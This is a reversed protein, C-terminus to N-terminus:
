KETQTSDITVIIEYFRKLLSRAYHSPHLSSILQSIDYGESQLTDQLEFIYDRMIEETFEPHFQLGWIHHDLVFAHHPEFSNTALIKAREPLQVASQAHAVYANFKEPLDCFLPDNKAAATTTIKVTGIERGDPHFDVQGGLAQAILQHGYCIGLVPINTVSVKQLWDIITLSWPNADSVMAHSGTIVIGSVERQNPLSQGLFPAAIMVNDKSLRMGSIIWDEFDGNRAAISPFTSGTKIILIPKM